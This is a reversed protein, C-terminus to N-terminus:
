YLTDDAIAPTAAVREFFPPNKAVVKPKSAGAELVTVIGDDLETFYIYGNAAVPSAYYQGAAAAREQYIEKGTKADYASVIGRDKVMVLQGRYVLASTVHPLGKMKKWLV